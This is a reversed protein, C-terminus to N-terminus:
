YLIKWDVLNEISINEIANSTKLQNKKMQNPEHM